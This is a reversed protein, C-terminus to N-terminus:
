LQFLGEAAQEDPNGMTTLDLAFEFDGLQGGGGGARRQEHLLVGFCIDSCVEELGIASAQLVGEHRTDDSASIDEERHLDASDYFYHGIGLISFFCM